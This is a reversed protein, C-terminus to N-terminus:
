TFACKLFNLLASRETSTYSASASRLIVSHRRCKWRVLDWAQAHALIADTGFFGLCVNNLMNKESEMSHAFTLVKKNMKAHIAHM